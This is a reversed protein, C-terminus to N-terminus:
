GMQQAEQLLRPDHANVLLFQADGARWLAQLMRHNDRVRQRDAAVLQEFIRLASPARASGDLQCRHYFADGAHVIWRRGDNVAVAAHGRSHGPLSIMVLDSAVGGLEEAAAFGHWPDGQAPHHRILRSGLRRQEPGYRIREIVTRPATVAAAEDASLHVQAWPFDAAGGVHDVDFHTVVIHRVDEPRLGLERIQNIAAEGRDFAPRFFHRGSGFRRQPADADRLGLGADVLVLYRAAEILLVHCVLGGPTGPPRM